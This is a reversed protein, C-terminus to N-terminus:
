AETAPLGNLVVNVLNARVRGTISSTLALDIGGFPM